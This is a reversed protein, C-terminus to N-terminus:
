PVIPGPVIPREELHVKDGLKPGQVTVLEVPQQAARTRGLVESPASTPRHSWALPTARRPELGLAGCPGEGAGIM